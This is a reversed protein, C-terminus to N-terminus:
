GCFLVIFGVKCLRRIHKKAKSPDWAPLIVPELELADRIKKQLGNRETVDEINVVIQYVYEDFWKKTICFYGKDGYKDSPPISMFPSDAYIESCEPPFNRYRVYRVDGLAAARIFPIPNLFVM